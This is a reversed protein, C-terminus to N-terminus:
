HTTVKEAQTKIADTVRDVDDKDAMVGLMVYGAGLKEHTYKAETESFGLGVLGGLLGGAAAGVGAGTFAAVIPGTALLGIGGTAAVAGVTTLGAAVAGVVGGVTGGIAIGEPAKTNEEIKIDEGDRWSNKSTLLSIQNEQYGLRELSHIAMMAKSRSDYIATVRREDKM